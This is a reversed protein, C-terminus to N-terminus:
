SDATLGDVLRSIFLRLSDSKVEEDDINLLDDGKKERLKIRM